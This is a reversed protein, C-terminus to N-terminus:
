VGWLRLLSRPLCGVVEYEKMWILSSKYIKVDHFSSGYRGPDYFAPTLEPSFTEGNKACYGGGTM